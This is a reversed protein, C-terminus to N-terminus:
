LRGGCIVETVFSLEQLGFVAVSHCELDNVYVLYDSFCVKADIECEKIGSSIFFLDDFCYIAFVHICLLYLRLFIAGPGRCVKSIRKSVVLITTPFPHAWLHVNNLVWM